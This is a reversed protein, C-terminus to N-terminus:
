AKNAFDLFSAMHPILAPAFVEGMAWSILADPSYVPTDTAEITASYPTEEVSWEFGEENAPISDKTVLREVYKNEAINKKIYYNPM